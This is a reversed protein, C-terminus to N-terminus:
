QGTDEAFEQRVAVVTHPESPSADHATRRRRRPLEEREERM